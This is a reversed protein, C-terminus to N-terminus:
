VTEIIPEQDAAPLQGFAAGWGSSKILAVTSAAAAAVTARVSDSWAESLDNNSNAPDEVSIGDANEALETLVELVQEDLRKESGGILKVVILEMVFTKLNVGNRKRWVKMVKIADTVGSDRVHDIHVQLNKK